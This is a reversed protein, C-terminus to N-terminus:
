IKKNIEEIDEKIEEMAKLQISLKLIIDQYKDERQEQKINRDNQSKLNFYILVVTLSAWLGQTIAIRLVPSILDEM